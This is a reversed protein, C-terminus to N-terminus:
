VRTISMTENIQRSRYVPQKNKKKKKRRIEFKKEISHSIEIVFVVDVLLMESIMSADIMCIM